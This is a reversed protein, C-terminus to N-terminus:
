EYGLTTAVRILICEVLSSGSWCVMRTVALTERVIVM